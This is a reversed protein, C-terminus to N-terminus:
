VIPRAGGGGGGGGVVSGVRLHLAVYCLTRLSRDDHQSRRSWNPVPSCCRRRKYDPFFSEEEEEVLKEEKEEKEEDTLPEIIDFNTRCGDGRVSRAVADWAM